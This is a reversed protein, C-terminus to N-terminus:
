KTCVANDAAEMEQSTPLSFLSYNFASPIQGRKGARFPSLQQWCHWATPLERPHGYSPVLSLNQERRGARPFFEEAVSCCCVSGLERQTREPRQVGEL